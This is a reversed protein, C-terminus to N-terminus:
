LMPQGIRSQIQDMAMEVIKKAGSAPLFRM